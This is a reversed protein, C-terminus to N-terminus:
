KQKTELIIHAVDGDFQPEIVLTEGPQFILISQFYGEADIELDESFWKWELDNIDIDESINYIAYKIETIVKSKIIRYLMTEKTFVNEYKKNIDSSKFYVKLAPGPKNFHNISIEDIKIITEVNEYKENEEIIDIKIGFFGSHLGNLSLEKIGKKIETKNNPYKIEWLLHNVDIDDTELEVWLSGNNLGKATINQKGWAIPLKEKNHKLYISDTTFKLNGEQKIELKYWGCKLGEFIYPIYVENIEKILNFEKNNDSFYLLFQYNLNKDFNFLNLVLEGNFKDIGTSNKIISLVAALKDKMSPQLIRIIDSTYIYGTDKNKIILKYDGTGLNNIKSNNNNFKFSLINENNKFLRGDLSTSNINDLSIISIEGDNRDLDTLDKKDISFKISSDYSNIQIVDSIYERNNISDTIIIKYNGITLRKFEYEKKSTNIEMLQIEEDDRLEMLQLTYICDIIDDELKINIKGDKSNDYTENWKTIISIFDNIKRKPKDLIIERKTINGTIENLISITYKGYTLNQIENGFFKFGQPGHWEIIFNDMNYNEIFIKIWGDKNVIDTPIQTEFKIDLGEEVEKYDDITFNIEAIENNIDSCEIIYNGPKLFWFEGDNNQNIINNEYKLKFQYPEIGGYAVIQIMGDESFPQTEGKITTIKLKLDFLGESQIDIIPSQTITENTLNIVSWYYKGLKLNEIKIKNNPLCEIIEEPFGVKNLYIKYEHESNYNEIILESWGLDTEINKIKETNINIKPPNPNLSDKIVYLTRGEYIEAITYECGSLNLEVKNFFNNILEPKINFKFIKYTENESFYNNNPNSISDDNDGNISFVIVYIKNNCKNRKVVLPLEFYNDSQKIKIVM